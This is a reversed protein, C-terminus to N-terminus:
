QVTIERRIIGYLPVNYITDRAKLNNPGKIQVIFLPLNPIGTKYAKGYGNTTSLTVSSGAGTYNVDANAVIISSYLYVSCGNVAGGLLDKVTYVIANQKQNSPKITWTTDIYDNDGSVTFDRSSDYIVSNIVQTTRVRYDGNKLSHFYYYGLSDTVGDFLYHLTDPKKFLQLHVNPRFYPIGLSDLDNAFQLQGSYSVTGNLDDYQRLEHYKKCSMNILICATIIM